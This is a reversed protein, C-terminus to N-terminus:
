FNLKKFIKEPIFKIVMMIIRWIFSSYIIEQKYKIAKVIKKALDSPDSILFNPAKIKFNKTKIYGPIVSVVTLRQNYKQRLGSLYSILGAKASGYIFNKGRGRLGAVSTIAVLFSESDFNMKTLIKNIILIPNIFNIKLNKECLDLNKLEDDTNGSFGAVWIIGDISEIHGVLELNKEIDLIDVEFISFKKSDFNNNIIFDEVRRKDRCFLFFKSVNQDILKILELSILSSAGYIIIKKKM